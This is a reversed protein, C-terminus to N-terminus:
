SRRAFEKPDAYSDQSFTGFEFMFVGIRDLYPSLPELFATQFLEAYLFAPNDQGACVGYRPQWSFRKATFDEPVKLDWKLHHPAGAFLKQWFDPEPISYFSFDGGGIPFM